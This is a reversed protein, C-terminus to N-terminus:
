LVERQHSADIVARVVASIDPPVTNYGEIRASSGDYFVAVDLAARAQRFITVQRGGGGAPPTLESRATAETDVDTTTVDIGVAKAAAVIAPGLAQARTGAM